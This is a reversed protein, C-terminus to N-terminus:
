SNNEVERPFRFANRNCCLTTMNVRQAHHEMISAVTFARLSSVQMDSDTIDFLIGDDKLVLLIDDSFRLTCEATLNKGPNRDVVLMLVDEVLLRVHSITSRSIKYETLLKEVYEVANIINEPTLSFDISYVDPIDDKYLLFPYVGKGYKIQVTVITIVAALIPSLSIGIWLGCMGYVQALMFTVAFPIILDRISAVFGAFPLPGVATHYSFILLLYSSAFYTFSIIRVASSAGDLLDPSTIGFLAAIGASFIISLVTLLVSGVAARKCSYGIIHRLKKTNSEGDYMAVLPTVALGLGNFVNVTETMNTAVALIPLQAEGFNATFYRNLCLSFIATFLLPCSGAIGNTGISYLKKRSIRFNLHFSNQKRLFHLSLVALSILISLATGLSIGRIGMKECLLISIVANGVIEVAYSLLYLLEDGDTYVAQQIFAFMPYVLVVWVFNEYYAEAYAYTVSNSDLYGLFADKVAFLMVFLLIGAAASFIIGNTFYANARNKHFQGIECIMSSIAGNTILMAVFIMFSNLPALLGVGGVAQENILNGIIVDDMLSLFYAMLAAVSASATM